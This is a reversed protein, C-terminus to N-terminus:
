PAAHLPGEPSEIGVFCSITLRRSARSPSVAHLQESNFVILDGAEPRITLAPDGLVRRQLEYPVDHLNEFESAPIVRDWFELEGEGAADGTILYGVAAVRAMGSRWGDTARDVHIRLHGGGAFYRYIGAPQECRWRVGAPWAKGLANLLLHLPRQVLRDPNPDAAGARMDPWVHAPDACVEYRIVGGNERGLSQVVDALTGPCVAHLTGNLWHPIRIYAIDGAIIQQLTAHDLQAAAGTGARGITAGAM